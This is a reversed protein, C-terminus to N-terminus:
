SMGRYRNSREQAHKKAPRLFDNVIVVAADGTNDTSQLKNWTNQETNELEWMLHDLQNDISYDGGYRQKFSQRRSGTLQYLGKGRTGHVNPVREEIDVNLGSEDQFNVLFARAVHDPMGREILGQYVYDAVEGQPISASSQGRRQGSEEGSAQEGDIQREMLNLAIMTELLAEEFEVNRNPDETVKKEVPKRSVEVKRMIGQTKEEVQNDYTGQRIEEVIQKLKDLSKKYM